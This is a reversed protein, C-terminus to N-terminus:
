EFPNLIKAGTHEIDAVDPTDLMKLVNLASQYGTNPLTTSNSKNM